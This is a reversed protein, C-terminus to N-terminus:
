KHGNNSYISYIWIKTKIQVGQILQFLSVQLIYCPLGIQVYPILSLCNDQPRCTSVSHIVGDSYCSCKRFIVAHNGTNFGKVVLLWVDFLQGLVRNYFESSVIVRWISPRYSLTFTAAFSKGHAAGESPHFGWWWNSFGWWWNKINWLVAREAGLLSWSM